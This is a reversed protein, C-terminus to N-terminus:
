NSKSPSTVAPNCAQLGELYRRRAPASATVIGKETVTLSRIIYECVNVNSSPTGKVVPQVATTEAM